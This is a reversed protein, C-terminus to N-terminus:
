GASRWRDLYPLIVEEGGGVGGGRGEEEKVRMKGCGGMAHGEEIM